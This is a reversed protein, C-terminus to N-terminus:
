SAMAPVDMEIRLPRVGLNALDAVAWEIAEELSEAKRDFAVYTRGNSKGLSSDDCKRYIADATKGDVEPIIVLFECTSMTRQDDQQPLRM